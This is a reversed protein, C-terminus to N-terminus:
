PVVVALGLAVTTTVKDSSRVAVSLSVVMVTIFRHSPLRSWASLCIHTLVLLCKTTQQYHDQPTLLFQSQFEKSHIIYLSHSTEFTTPIKNYPSSISLTITPIYFYRQFASTYQIRGDGM